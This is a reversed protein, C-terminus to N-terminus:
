PRAEKERQKMKKLLFFLRFPDPEEEEERIRAGVKSSRTNKAALKAQIPCTLLPTFDTQLAAAFVPSRGLRRLSTRPYQQTTPSIGLSL